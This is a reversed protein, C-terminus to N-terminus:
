AALDALAWAVAAWLLALAALTAAVRPLAGLMLVSPREGAAASARPAHAHEHGHDHGHTRGDTHAHVHTPSM